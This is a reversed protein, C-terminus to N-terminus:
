NLEPAEVEVDPVPSSSSERQSASSDGSNQKLEEALQKATSLHQEVKSDAQQVIETFQQSGVGNLAQLEAHLWMKTGMQSAVFCMDFENGQKESLMEQTMEHNTEIAKRQLDLLKQASGDLIDRRESNAMQGETGRDQASPMPRSNGATRTRPSNLDATGDPLVDTAEGSDVTARPQPMAATNGAQRSENASDVADVTSMGPMAQKLQRNLAQHDDRVQEAFKKVDEHNAQQAAFAALEAQSQNTLYLKAALYSVMERNGQSQDAYGDQTSAGQELNDIAPPTAGRYGAERQTPQQPASAPEDLPQKPIEPNDVDDVMGNDVIDGPQETASESRDLATGPENPPSLPSPTQQALVSAPLALAAAVALTNFIRM